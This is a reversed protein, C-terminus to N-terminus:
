KGRPNIIELEFEDVGDLLAMFRNIADTSKGVGTDGDYFYEGLAICGLLQRPYNAIHIQIDSRNAVGQLIFAEKLAKNKSSWGRKCVYCGDPICSVLRKNELWPLEMTHFAKDIIELKGPTWQDPSLRSRYLKAQIM